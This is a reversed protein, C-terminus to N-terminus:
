GGSAKRPTAVITFGEHEVPEAGDPERESGDGSGGGLMNKLCGLM